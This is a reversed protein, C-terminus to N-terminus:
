KLKFVFTIIGSQNQQEQSSELPTFRWTRLADISVQELRPDSKTHPTAFVVSGDPAVTFSIKVTAARKVDSPFEPLRGSQKARSIGSDWSITFMEDSVLQDSSGEPRNGVLLEDEVPLASMSPREKSGSGSPLLSARKGPKLMDSSTFQPREQPSVADIVPRNKDPLKLLPSTESIMPRSPLEIVPSGSDLTPLVGGGSSELDGTPAFTMETFDLMFPKVDILMFFFIVALTVHLGGSIWWGVRIEVPASQM